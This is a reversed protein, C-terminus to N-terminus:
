LLKTVALHEKEKKNWIGNEGRFPVIMSEVSIDAGTFAAASKSNKLIDITGKITKQM